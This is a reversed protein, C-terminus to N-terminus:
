NNDTSDSNDYAALAIFGVVVTLIAYLTLADVSYLRILGVSIALLAAGGASIMIIAVTALVARITM